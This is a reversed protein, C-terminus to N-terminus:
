RPASFHETAYWEYGKESKRVYIGIGTRTVDNAIMAEYHPKSQKWSDFIEQASLDPARGKQLNESIVTYHYKHEDMITSWDRGDPRTHEFHGNEMLEKSRERATEHLEDDETLEALSLSKREENVLKLVGDELTPSFDTIGAGSPDIDFDSGTKETKAASSPQSIAASQKNGVAIEDLMLNFEDCGTLWVCASLALMYGMCRYLLKHKM